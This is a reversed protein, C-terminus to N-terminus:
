TSPTRRTRRRGRPPRPRVCSPDIRLLNGNAIRYFASCDPAITLNNSNHSFTAVTEATGNEVDLRLLTRKNMVYFEGDPGCEFGVSCCTPFQERDFTQVITGHGDSLDATFLVYRDDALHGCGWFIGDASFDAGSSTLDFGLPGVITGEGTELDIKFLVDLENAIGYLAQDQAQTPTVTFLIAVLATIIHVATPLRLILVELRRAVQTM